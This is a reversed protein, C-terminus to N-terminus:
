TPVKVGQSKAWEVMALGVTMAEEASLQCHDASDLREVTFCPYLPEDGDLTMMPGYATEAADIESMKGGGGDM